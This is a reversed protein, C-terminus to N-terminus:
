TSLAVNVTVAGAGLIEENVGVLPTAAVGAADPVDTLIEPVFRALVVPTVM